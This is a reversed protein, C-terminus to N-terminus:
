YEFLIYYQQVDDIGRVSISILGGTQDYEYLEYCLLQDDKGFYHTSVTRGEQYTPRGYYVLSGGADAEEICENGDQDTFFEWMTFFSTKFFTGDDNYEHVFFADLNDVFHINYKLTRALQGRDNYEFLDYSARDGYSFEECRSPATGADYSYLHRSNFDDANDRFFTRQTLKGNEDYEYIFHAAESGDDRYRIELVPGKGTRSIRLIEYLELPERAHRILVTYRQDPQDEVSNRNGSGFVSMSLFFILLACILGPLVKM